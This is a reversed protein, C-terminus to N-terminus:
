FTTPVDVSVEAVTERLAALLAHNEGPTGVTIRLCDVLLPHTGDLRKILVGRQKLGDFVAGAQGSATRVLIFNAESPYPDVGDLDSLAQMLVGRQERIADTQADFVQKHRLAFAASAQTLVNINYPLRTKDIEDIWESPGAMYGLRLGALGMKSVTRMVLLNPWRGLHPLFSTDTFPAYAEDLIVLGPSAAIIAEIAGTDFLNGTPNNPYAIFVLAPREREIAELALEQDLGFDDARLPVGVYNLGALLAIMRYMVFGPDFSLVTRGPTAVTLALMQILEDSGNGLLLAADDPIGMARRLANQLAPSRPDPYRNVEAARLEDLWAERLEDPWTHPNEMADLKILGGADPVHYASLARIEPRVLKEVLAATTM